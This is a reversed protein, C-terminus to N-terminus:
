AFSPSYCIFYKQMSYDDAELIVGGCTNKLSNKKGKVLKRSVPVRILVTEGKYHSSPSNRRLERRVM